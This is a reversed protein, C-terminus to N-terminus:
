PAQRGEGNCKWCTSHASHHPGHSVTNGSGNCVRCVVKARERELEKQLLDAERIGPSEPVYLAQGISEAFLAVDKAIAKIQESTAEVGHEELSEALGEAFYDEKSYSM